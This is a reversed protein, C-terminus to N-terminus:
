TRCMLRLMGVMHLDAWPSLMTVFSLCWSCVGAQSRQGQVQNVFSAMVCETTQLTQKLVRSYDGEM